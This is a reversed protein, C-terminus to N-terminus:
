LVEDITLGSNGLIRRIETRAQIVKRAHDGDYGEILRGESAFFHKYHTQILTLVCSGNRAM